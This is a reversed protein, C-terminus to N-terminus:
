VTAALVCGRVDDKFGGSMTMDLSMLKITSWVTWPKVRTQLVLRSQPRTRLAVYELQGARAGLIDYCLIDTYSKNQSHMVRNRFLALLM